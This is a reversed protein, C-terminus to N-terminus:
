VTHRGTKKWVSGEKKEGRRHGERNNNATWQLCKKGEKKWPSPSDVYPNSKTKKNRNWM